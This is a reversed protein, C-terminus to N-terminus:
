PGMVEIRYKKYQNVAVGTYIRVPQMLRRVIHIVFSMHSPKVKKVLQVAPALDSVYERVVIEFNYTRPHEIVEVPVGLLDSLLRGVKEPNMPAYADRKLIVRSRREEISDGPQATLGYRQEWYTLGWTATEPYTQLRLERFYEWAEGMERGYIEFMWKAVYSRDYIPSVARMMKKATENTPFQELNIQTGNM